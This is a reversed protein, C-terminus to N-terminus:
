LWTLLNWRDFRVMWVAGGAFGIAAAVGLAGSFKGFSSKQELGGAQAKGDGLRPAIAFAVVKNQIGALAEPADLDLAGFV